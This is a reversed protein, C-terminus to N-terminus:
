RVVYGDETLVPITDEFSTENESCFFRVCRVPETSFSMKIVRQECKTDDDDHRIVFVQEKHFNIFTDIDAIRMFEIGDTHRSIARLLCANKLPVNKNRLRETITDIYSVQYMGTIDDFNIRPLSKIKVLIQANADLFLSEGNDM